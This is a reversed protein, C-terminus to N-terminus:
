AGTVAAALARPVRTAQRLQLALRLTQLSQLQWVVTLLYSDFM